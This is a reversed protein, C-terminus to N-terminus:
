TLQDFMAQVDGVDVVGDDNFDFADANDQVADSHRNAFLAQADGM